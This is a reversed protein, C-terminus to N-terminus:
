SATRSLRINDLEILGHDGRVGDRFLVFCIEWMQDWAANPFGIDRLRFSCTSWEPLLDIQWKAIEQRSDERPPQTLRKIELQVGMGNGDTRVDVCLWYGCSVFSAWSALQLRTAYGVFSPPLRDAHRQAFDFLLGLAKGKGRNVFMARLSDPDGNEHYLVTSGGLLNPRQVGADFTDIMVLDPLGGCPDGPCALTAALLQLGGEFDQSLDVHLRDRLLPPVEVNELLVPVIRIGRESMTRNLFANIEARVWSSQLSARSLIAVLVSADALGAEIKATLSDGADLEWNDFWVDLDHEKLAEAIRRAKEKDVSSHSILVKM